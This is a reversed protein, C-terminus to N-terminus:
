TQPQNTSTSSSHSKAKDKDKFAENQSERYNNKKDKKSLLHYNKLCRIDIDRIYFHLQLNAKTEVYGAKEVVEEWADLDRKWRDLWTWISPLLKEQFYCIMTTKNSTSTPDFKKLVAQLHKLHM